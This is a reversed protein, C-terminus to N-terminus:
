NYHSALNGVPPLARSREAIGPAHDPSIGSGVTFDPHSFTLDPQSWHDIQKPHDASVLCFFPRFERPEQLIHGSFWSTKPNKIFCAAHITRILYAGINTRPM